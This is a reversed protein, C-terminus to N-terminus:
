IKAFRRISTDWLPTELAMKLAEEDAVQMKGWMQRTYGDTRNEMYHRALEEEMEKFM